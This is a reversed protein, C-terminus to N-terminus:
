HYKRREIGAEIRRVVTMYILRLIENGLRDLEDHPIIPVLTKRVAIVVAAAVALAATEVGTKGAIANEITEQLECGVSRRIRLRPRNRMPWERRRFQLEVTSRVEDDAGLVSRLTCRDGAVILAWV